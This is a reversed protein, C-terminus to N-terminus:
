LYMRSLGISITLGKDVEIMEKYNLTGLRRILRNKDITRVQEMLVISDYYLGERAKVFIHTPLNAKHRIDSTISAIITTKSHNNGVNNQIILVPRIGSQESGITPNLDALYIEGREIHSIMIKVEKGIHVRFVIKHQM